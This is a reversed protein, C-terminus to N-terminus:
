GSVCGNFGLLRTAWRVAKGLEEVRLWACIMAYVILGLLIVAGLAAVDPLMQELPGWAFACVGGMLISAASIKMMETGAASLLPQGLRAELTRTLRWANLCSALSTALALGGVKMPGLLVLALVVNVALAEAALRVPTWTDQMAYFAGSSVRGAAYGILGLSFFRLASATMLTSSADFAGRQFCVRVIPEALVWLGVAAPVSEFGVMRLVTLTTRHFTRRDNAAAQESLVPLSAQASATAFLALPLQILRNAFYLAAVAGVGVLQNMSAIMTMFLVGLQHVASGLVRPGMLRMAATAGEHRWRWQPRFGVRWATPLQIAVQLLGGLMVGWALGFVPPELRPVLWALAAIMALNLVAPGLAPAAFRRVSNLLACFFAWIGVLTIFPFLFRTLRVTLAFREPDATFGPAILRVFWPATLSGVLGAVAVVVTVRVALAQALRWFDESSRTARAASLMPVIATSMAGEGVLDRLLNPLRFAVVFAETQLGTGFVRAILFDRVFGLIRSAATAAAIVGASGAWSGGPRSQRRHGNM